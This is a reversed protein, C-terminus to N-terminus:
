SRSGSSGRWDRRRDADSAQRARVPDGEPRGRGGHPGVPHQGAGDGDARWRALLGARREDPRGRFLDDVETELLDDGSIVSCDLLRAIEGLTMATRRARGPAPRRSVALGPRTCDRRSRGATWRRRSSRSRRRRRWRPRRRRRHAARADARHRCHGRHQGGRDRQQPGPAHRSRERGQANAIVDSIMDSIYVGTVPKDFMKTLGKLELREAVDKTTM